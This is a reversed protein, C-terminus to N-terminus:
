AAEQQARAPVPAPSAPRAAAPPVPPAGEAALACIADRAARARAYSLKCSAAAGRLTMGEIFVCRGVRKMNTPWADSRVAVLAFAPATVRAVLARARRSLASASVGTALALSRLTQGKDYIAVLLARDGAPLYSARAVLAEAARAPAPRRLDCLEEVRLRRPKAPRASWGPGSGGNGRGSSAGGGEAGAQTHESIM